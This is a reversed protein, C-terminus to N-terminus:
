SAACVWLCTNEGFVQKQGKACPESARSKPIGAHGRPWQIKDVHIDLKSPSWDGVKVNAYSGRAKELREYYLRVDDEGANKPLIPQEGGSAVKHYSYIEYEGQSIPTKLLSNYLLAGDIQTPVQLRADKAASGHGLYSKLAKAYVQVAEYLRAAKSDTTFNAKKLSLNPDCSKWDSQRWTPDVPSTGAIKCSFKTEWFRQFYPNRHADQGPKLGILHQEFAAQTPPKLKLTLSGQIEDELFAGQFGALEAPDQVLGVYLLGNEPRNKAQKFFDVMWAITMINPPAFVILVPATSSDRAIRQLTDSDGDYGEDGGTRARITLNSKICIHHRQVEALFRQLRASTEPDEFAASNIYTWNFFALIDALAKGQDKGTLTTMNFLGFQQKFRSTDDPYPKMTLGRHVAVLNLVPDVNIVTSSDSQNPGVEFRPQSSVRTVPQYVDVTDIFCHDSINAGLKVGPLLTKDSNITDLASLVAEVRQMCQNYKEAAPRMEASPSEDYGMSSTELVIDGPIVTNAVSERSGFQPAVPQCLIALTAILAVLM